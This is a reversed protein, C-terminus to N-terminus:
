AVWSGRKLLRRYPACIEGNLPPNAKKLPAKVTSRVYTKHSEKDHWPEYATCAEMASFIWVLGPHEGRKALVEQIKKEKRFNKKRIHEIELGNQAALRQANGRLEDRIGKAFLPYDFIRIKHFYLYSTM